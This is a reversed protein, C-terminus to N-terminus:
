RINLARNLFTWLNLQLSEHLFDSHGGNESVHLVQFGGLSKAKQVIRQGHYPLIVNDQHSTYVILPMTHPGRRIHQLNETTHLEYGMLTKSWSKWSTYEFLDSPDEYANYLILADVPIRTAVDVMLGTGLSFGMAVVPVGPCDERALQVLEQIAVTLDAVDSYGQHDLTWVNAFHLGDYYTKSLFYARNLTCEFYNGVGGVYVLNVDPCVPPEFASRDLGRYSVLAARHGHHEFVRSTSPQSVSCETAFTSFVSKILTWVAGGQM